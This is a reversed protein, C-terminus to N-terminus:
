IQRNRGIGPVFGAPSTLQKPERSLPASAQQRLYYGELDDKAKEASLQREAKTKKAALSAHQAAPSAKVKAGEGDFWDM